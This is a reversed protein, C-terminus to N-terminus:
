QDLAETDMGHAWEVPADLLEDPLTALVQTAWDHLTAGGAQDTLRRHLGRSVLEQVLARTACRRWDHAMLDLVEARADNMIGSRTLWGPIVDGAVFPGSSALAMLFGSVPAPGASPLTPAAVSDPRYVGTERGARVASPAASARVGSGDHGRSDVAPAPGADRVERLFSVVLAADYSSSLYAEHVLWGTYQVLVERVLDDIVPEMIERMSAVSQRKRSALIELWTFEPVVEEGHRCVTGDAHVMQASTGAGVMAVDTGAACQM